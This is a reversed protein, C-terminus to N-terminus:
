PKIKAHEMIELCFANVADGFPEGSRINEVMASFAAETVQADGPLLWEKLTATNKMGILGLIIGCLMITAIKLNRHSRHRAKVPYKKRQEPNYEICYGM